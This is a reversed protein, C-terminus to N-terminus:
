LLFYTYLLPHQSNQAYKGLLRLLAALPKLRTIELLGNTPLFGGKTSTHCITSQGFPPQVKM